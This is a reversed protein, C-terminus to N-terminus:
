RGDSRYDRKDRYFGSLKTTSPEEKHEVLPKGGNAFYLAHLATHSKM